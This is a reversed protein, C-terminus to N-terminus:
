KTHKRIPFEKEYLYSWTVGNNISRICPKTVNYLEAIRGMSIETQELIQIIEKVENLSLKVAMKSSITKSRLPYIANRNYLLEGNNIRKITKYAIKYKKAIDEFTISPNSIDAIIKEKNLIIKNNIDIKEKRIPFDNELNRAILNKGNNISAISLKSCNYKISIETNTLYTDKLDLIINSIQEETLNGKYVKDRIRTDKVEAKRVRLPYTLKPNTWSRGRNIDSIAYLSVGYREGISKFSEKTETILRIIEEINESTLIANKTPKCEGGETMNYGYDRNTSNYKLIYDKEVEDLRDILVNDELITWEFKDSGYKKLAKHFIFNSTKSDHLHRNKRAELGQKTQGIYVKNNVINKAM